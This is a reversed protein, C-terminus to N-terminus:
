DICINPFFLDFYNDLKLKLYLLNDETIDIPITVKDCLYLAKDIIHISNSIEQKVTDRGIEDIVLTYFELPINEKILIDFQGFEFLRKPNNPNFYDNYVYGNIGDIDFMIVCDIIMLNGQLM